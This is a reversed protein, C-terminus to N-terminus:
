ANHPCGTKLLRDYSHQVWNLGALFPKAQLSGAASWVGLYAQLQFCCDQKATANNNPNKTREV